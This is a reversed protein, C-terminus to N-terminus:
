GAPAPAAGGPQPPTGTGGTGGPAVRLLSSCKRQATKFKEGNTNLGDTNFVPGKGSVNPTPVNVGNERMCSAFKTLAARFAPSSTRGFRGGAAGTGGGFRGGGCKRLAAQFQAQTVGKPLTPSGGKGGGGGFFGGGAPPRKQGAKFAKREPLTIGSKKLCERLASFRAGPQGSQGPATQKSSAGSAAATSSTTGASSGGGCAALLLSSLLLVLTAVGRMTKNAKTHHLDM